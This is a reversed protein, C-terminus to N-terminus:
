YPTFSQLRTQVVATAGRLGSSEMDSDTSPSDQKTTAKFIGKGGVRTGLLSLDDVSAM